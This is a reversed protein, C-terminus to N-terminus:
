EANGSSGTGNTTRSQYRLKRVGDWMVYFLSVQQGHELDGNMKFKEDSIFEKGAPKLTKQVTVNPSFYMRQTGFGFLTLFSDLNRM